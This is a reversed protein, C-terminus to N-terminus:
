EAEKKKGPYVGKVEKLFFRGVSPAALLDDYVGRPVEEYVYTPGSHFKVTLKRDGEDYGVAYILLSEVLEMHPM